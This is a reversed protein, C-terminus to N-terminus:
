LSEKATWSQIKRYLTSANVQLARAARSVNGDFARLAYDVAEREISELPRVLAPDYRSNTLPVSSTKLNAEQSASEDQFWLAASVAASSAPPAAALTAPLMFEEVQPGNHLAVVARIVNVLERVNGPWRHERMRQLAAPSFDVFQKGDEKAYRLLLERAILAIDEGRSRLPPLELPIVYLRYFLDERFHGLRVQERLDRHSACM